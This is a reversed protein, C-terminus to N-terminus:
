KHYDHMWSEDYPEDWERECPCVGQKVLRKRCYKCHKDPATKQKVDEIKKDAKLITIKPCVRNSSAEKGSSPPQLKDKEKTRTNMYIIKSITASDKSIRRLEEQREGIRVLWDMLGNFSNGMSERAWEEMALVKKDLSYFKFRNLVMELDINPMTLSATTDICCIILTLLILKVKEFPVFDGQGVVVISTKTTLTSKHKSTVYSGVELAEFVKSEVLTRVQSPETPFLELEKDQKLEVETEKTQSLKVESSFSSYTKHWMTIATNIDEQARKGSRFKNAVSGIKSELHQMDVDGICFIVKTGRTVFIEKNQKVCYSPFAKAVYKSTPDYKIDKLMDTQEQLIYFEFVTGVLNVEDLTLGGVLALM